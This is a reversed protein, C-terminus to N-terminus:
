RAISSRPTHLGRCCVSLTRCPCWCSIAQGACRRMAPVPGSPFCPGILSTRSCCPPLQASAPPRLRGDASRRHDDQRAIHWSSRRPGHPRDRDRRSRGSCGDGGRPRHRGGFVGRNARAGWGPDQRRRQGHAGLGVRGLPMGCPAERDARVSAAEWDATEAIADNSVPGVIRTVDVGSRMPLGTEDNEALGEIATRLMRRYRIIGVDTKGLHERTRDQIPGMGEVAWQDHVNIDLGM